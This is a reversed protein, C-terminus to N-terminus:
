LASHCLDASFQCFTTEKMLGNVKRHNPLASPLHVRKQLSPLTGSHESPNTEQLLFWMSQLPGTGDFFAQLTSIQCCTPPSRPSGERKHWVVQFNGKSWATRARLGRRDEGKLNVNKGDRKKSLFQNSSDFREWFNGPGINDKQIFTLSSGRGMSGIDSIIIQKM